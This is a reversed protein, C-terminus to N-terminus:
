LFINLCISTDTEWWTAMWWSESLLLPVSILSWPLVRKVDLLTSVLTIYNKQQQLIWCVVFKRLNHNELIKGWTTHHTKRCKWPVHQRWGKPSQIMWVFRWFTLDYMDRSMICVDVKWRKLLLHWAFCFTCYFNVSYWFLPLCVSKKLRYQLFFIAYLLTHYNSGSLIHTHTHIYIYIDIYSFKPVWTVVLFTWRNRNM